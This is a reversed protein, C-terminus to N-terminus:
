KSTNNSFFKQFYEIWTKVTSLRRPITSGSMKWIDFESKEISLEKLTKYFIPESFVIKALEIMRKQISMSLLERGKNTLQICDGDYDCLNLWKLVNFYYDTQRDVLGFEAIIGIKTPCEFNEINIFIAHVREFSNAQPFPANHNVQSMTPEIQTLSFKTDVEFSFAKEEDQLVSFSNEEYKFPIFRFVNDQYFLIHSRVEKKNQIYQKWMLEPYLLQRININSRFGVKAEVL